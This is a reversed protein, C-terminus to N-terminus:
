LGKGVLAREWQERGKVWGLGGPHAGGGGGDGSCVGRGIGDM